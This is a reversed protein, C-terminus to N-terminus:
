LWQLMWIMVCPVALTNQVHYVARIVWKWFLNLNVQFLDLSAIGFHSLSLHIIKQSCDFFWTKNERESLVDRWLHMHSNLFMTATILKLCLIPLLDFLSLSTMCFKVHNSDGESKLWNLLMQSYVPSFFYRDKLISGLLRIPMAHCLLPTGSIFM